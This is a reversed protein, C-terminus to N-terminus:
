YRFNQNENFKFSLHQQKFCFFFSKINPSFVFTFIFIFGKHCHPNEKQCIAKLQVNDQIDNFFGNETIEVKAEFVGEPQNNAWTIFLDEESEPVVNYAKISAEKEDLFRYTGSDALTIGVYAREGNLALKIESNFVLSKDQVNLKQVKRKNKSLIM